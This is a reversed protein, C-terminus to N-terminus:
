GTTPKSEAVNTCVLAQTSIFIFLIHFIQRTLKLRHSHWQIPDLVAYKQSETTRFESHRNLKVQSAATQILSHLDVGPGVSISNNRSLRFTFSYFQPMVANTSAHSRHSSKWIFSEMTSNSSILM